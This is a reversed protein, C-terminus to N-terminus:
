ERVLIEFTKSDVLAHSDGSPTAFSAKCVKDKKFYKGFTKFGNNVFRCFYEPVKSIEKGSSAVSYGAIIAKDPLDNEFAQWRINGEVMPTLYDSAISGDDNTAVYG